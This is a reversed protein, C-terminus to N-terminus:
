AAPIAGGVNAGGANPGAPIKTINLNTVDALTKGAPLGEITAVSGIATLVGALQAPTLVAHFSVAAPTVTITEPM